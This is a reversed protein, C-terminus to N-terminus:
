KEKTKLIFISTFEWMQFEGNFLVGGGVLKGRFAFSNDLSVTHENEPTNFVKSVKEALEEADDFDSWILRTELRVTPVYEGTVPTISYTVSPKKLDLTFGPFVRNVLEPIQREIAQKVYKGRM